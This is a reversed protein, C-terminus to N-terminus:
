PINKDTVAEVTAGAGSQSPLRWLDHETFCWCEAAIVFTHVSEEQGSLIVCQPRLAIHELVPPGGCLRERVYRDNLALMRHHVILRHPGLGDGDSIVLSRSHDTVREAQVVAAAFGIASRRVDDRCAVGIVLVGDHDAGGGLPM